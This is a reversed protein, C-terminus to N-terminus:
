FFQFITIYHITLKSTPSQERIHRIFDNIDFIKERLCDNSKSPLAFLLLITVNNSEMNYNSLQHLIYRFSIGDNTYELSGEHQRCHTHIEHNLTRM